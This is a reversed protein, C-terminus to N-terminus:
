KKRFADLSVVKPAEGPAAAAGHQEADGAKSSSSHEDEGSTGATDNAQRILPAGPTEVIPTAGAEYPVEVFEMAFQAAPDAFSRVAAFPIALKEPINNFSLEVEFGSEHVRLKRFQHQLVITMEQDYRALLQESIKVGPYRTAFKIYFHHDGPLGELEARRLAQRLVGKLVEQALLLDYRMLDEIM